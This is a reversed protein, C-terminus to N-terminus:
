GKVSIVYMDKLGVFLNAMVKAAVSDQESDSPSGGASGMELALGWLLWVAWNTGCFALIHSSGCGTQESLRVGRWIGTSLWGKSLFHFLIFVFLGGGWFLSLFSTM